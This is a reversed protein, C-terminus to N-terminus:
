FNLIENWLEEGILITIGAPDHLNQNKVTALIQRPPISQSYSENLQSSLPNNPNVNDTMEEVIRIPRLPNTIRSNLLSTSQNKTTM